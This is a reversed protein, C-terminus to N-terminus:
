QYNLKMGSRHYFNKNIDFKIYSNVINTPTSELCVISIISKIDSIDATFKKYIDQLFKILNDICYPVNVDVNTKPQQSM